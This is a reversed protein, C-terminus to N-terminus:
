QTIAIRKKTGVLSEDVSLSKTPYYYLKFVRNAHDIILQFRGCPDYSPEGRNALTRVDVIHFFKQILQFRNLAMMKPFFPTASSFNTYWYSKISSKKIMGMNVLFAKMELLTVDM